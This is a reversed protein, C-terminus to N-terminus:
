KPNAPYPATLIAEAEKKEDRAVNAWEYHCSVKQHECAYISYLAMMSCALKEADNQPYEGFKEKWYEKASKM